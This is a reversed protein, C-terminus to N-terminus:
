TNAHNKIKNNIKGGGLRWIMDINYADCFGKEPVNKETRDGGNGFSISMKPYLGQVRTLLDVATGDVDNFAIIEDIYKIAKLIEAREAYSMFSQGKEKILWTDSNLGVIVKYAMNKAAKFLRIHGRHLPDFGGSLVMIDYKKM